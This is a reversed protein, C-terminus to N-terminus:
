RSVYTRLRRRKLPRGLETGTFFVKEKILGGDQLYVESFLIKVHQDSKLFRAEIGSIIWKWSKIRDCWSVYMAHPKHFPQLKKKRM